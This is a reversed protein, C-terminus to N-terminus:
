EVNLGKRKRTRMFMIALGLLLNRATITLDCAGPLVWMEWSGSDGLMDWMFGETGLWGDALQSPAERSAGDADGMAYRGAFYQDTTTAM